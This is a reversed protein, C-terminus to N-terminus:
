APLLVQFTTGSLSSEVSVTGGHARVIEQAIYLGLRLGTREDSGRPCPEFMTALTEPPIPDGRLENHVSIRATGGSASVEVHISSGDRGYQVANTLLSSAVQGLRDPDWLGHLETAVLEFQRDPHAAALSDMESKVVSSLRMHCRALPIGGGLRARMMDLLQEVMRTARRAFTAIRTAAHVAASDHALIETALMIAGLAGQLDHGVIGLMQQLQATQEREALLTSCEAALQRAHSGRGRRDRTANAKQM